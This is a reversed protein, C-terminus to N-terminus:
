RKPRMLYLFGGENQVFTWGQAGLDNLLAEQQETSRITSNPGDRPSVLKYEWKVGTGPTAAGVSLMIAIGGVTGLLLSKLDLSLNSLKM